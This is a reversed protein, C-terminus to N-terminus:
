HNKARRRASRVSIVSRAAAVEQTAGKNSNKMYLIVQKDTLSM